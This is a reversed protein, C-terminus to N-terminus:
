RERNRALKPIPLGNERYDLHQIKNHVHIYFPIKSIRFLDQDAQWEAPFFSSTILVMMNMMPEAVVMM